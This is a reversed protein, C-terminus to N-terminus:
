LVQENVGQASEVVRPVCDNQNATMLGSAVTGQGGVETTDSQQKREGGCVSEGIQRRRNKGKEVSLLV